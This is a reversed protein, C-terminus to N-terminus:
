DCILFLGFHQLLQMRSTTQAWCRLHRTGLLGHRSDLLRLKVGILHISARESGKLGYAGHKTTRSLRTTRWTTGTLWACSYFLNLVGHTNYPAQLRPVSTPTHQIFRLRCSSVLFPITARSHLRSGPQHPPSRRARLWVGLVAYLSYLAMRKTRSAM